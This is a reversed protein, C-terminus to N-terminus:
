RIRHLLRPGTQRRRLRGGPFLPPHSQEQGGRHGHPGCGHRRKQCFRGHGRQRPHRRDFGPMGPKTSPRLSIRTSSTPSAPGAWWAPPSFTTRYSERPKQICNTTMVIAGPFAAFEKAQNQWATGYHGYFHSYKKLEPYGHCPLMEGHTYVNIGKGETQKLIIELDKLDHGSVLIAKGKKAGLPVPTPVPHGYTGTNGADLLEMARLNVEGCKLALGVYDDAGLSNDLTAAMAEYIYASIKEDEQGLIRAHDAYAALGKIGYVILERLSLIDPNVTEDAKIGVTEGQAVMGAQDAAPVFTAPGDAFAVNGGAAQVKAKLADRHRAADNVLTVFRAPDFDVNTLTSFIAENTFQDVAPDSVNVKAGEVAVQAIGKVAYVLLDQLAAVEPQKGCVGIKTCGEGKATQECQFCFM